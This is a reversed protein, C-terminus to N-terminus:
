KFLRKNFLKLDNVSVKSSQTGDESIVEYVLPSLVKNVVWPGKFKSLLKASINKAKSSLARRRVMVKDGTKYTVYRHRQNYYKAQRDHADELNQTIWGRIARLRFMRESWEETSSHEIDKDNELERRLTNKALPERGLNVFAPSMKTSSHVATNFAFRFEKLHKDWDRQDQDLYAVIMAKLVRNVREVPNAQPRYVPSTTLRIGYETALDAMVKNIYETGNDSHLIRPTGWRSVVLDEFAERILPGTARRLPCIEIWKSFLDQFVVLYCYGSKSRPFEMVDTAVTCWPHEVIRNGLLGQAQRQSVKVKQCTECSRVYDIVDSYMRPWFYSTSLRAYTRDIGQHAASPDDHAECLVRPRDEEPVVYKWEVGDRCVEDVISNRHCYFLKNGRIRWDKFKQPSKKIDEIRKDYWSLEKIDINSLTEFEEPEEFMRSLADPAHHSSGKRHEIEIDYSLLKMAWRALRGTPNQMKQLSRLSSHDTIVKFKFGELYARFKEVAWVVALCELETAFYNKEANKLTRSAYAIVREEGDIHQALIAGLGVTSADTYLLFPLTFNPRSLTPPEILHQKVTDFARQQEEGWNFKVGKKLLKTIPSIKTSFDPIFRRYWSGMGVFRRVQRINRPAPFNRIASTKDPDVMLGKGNVLFGLYKVESCCFKSKDPNITLDAKRLKEFVIKLWKLHDQFTETVVIIDDLYAFVHPEMEPGILKDILRQFSAPSNCLGFPMRRFQFLGRGPVPFATIPRSEPTLPVQHFAKSLDLTTIYRATRLKDLISNMYPLPYADKKTIANIKRFDICFRYKGNRNAMVVPSSWASESHEIIGNELLKDIEQNMAKEVEPSMPYGRQKIPPHDGVDIHHTALSTESLKDPTPPIEKKLFEKLTISEETSLEQLNNIPESNCTISKITEFDFLQSPKTAFYWKLSDFLIRIGLARLSDLGLICPIEMSPLIRATVKQRSDKLGIPLKMYQNIEETAGVPTIVTATKGSKTRYGLNKAIKEFQPNIYTRSAGCDVLAPIEYNGLDITVFLLSSKRDTSFLEETDSEEEIESSLFDEGNELMHLEETSETTKLKPSADDTNFIATDEESMKLQLKGFVRSLKTPHSRGFWM